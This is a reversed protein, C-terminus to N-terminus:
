YWQLLKVRIKLWPIQLQISTEPNEFLIKLRFRCKNICEWYSYNFNAKLLPYKFLKIWQKCWIQYCKLLNIVALDTIFLQLLESLIYLGCVYISKQCVIIVDCVETLKLFKWSQLNNVYFQIICILKMLSTVIHFIM